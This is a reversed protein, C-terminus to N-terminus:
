PTISRPNSSPSSVLLLGLGFTKGKGIGHAIASNFSDADVVTGSVTLTIYPIGGGRKGLDAHTLKSTTLSSPDLQLGSKLLRATVWESRRDEPVPVLRSRYAHGNQKLVTRLEMPIDASPTYQCAVSLTVDVTEGIHRVPEEVQAEITGLLDERLPVSSRVHVVGLDHDALWLCHAKARADTGLGAPLLKTVIAHGTQRDHFARLLVEAPRFTTTTVM